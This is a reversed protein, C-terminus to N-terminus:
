SVPPRFLQLLSDTKEIFTFVLPVIKEATEDPNQWNIEGLRHMIYISYWRHRMIKIWNNHSTEQVIREDAMDLVLGSYLEEVKEKSQLLIEKFADRRSSNKQDLDLVFACRFGDSIVNSFYFNFYDDGAWNILLRPKKGRNIYIGPLEDKVMEHIKKLVLLRPNEM